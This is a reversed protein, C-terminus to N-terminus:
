ASAPNPTEVFRTVKTKGLKFAREKGRILLNDTARFIIVSIDFGIAM